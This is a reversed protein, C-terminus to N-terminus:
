AAQRVAPATYSWLRGTKTLGPVKGLARGIINARQNKLAPYSAILEAPTFPGNHQRAAAEVIQQLETGSTATSRKSRRTVTTGTATARPRGRRAGSSTGRVRTTSSNSTQAGGNNFGCITGVANRFDAAAMGSDYLTRIASEQWTQM